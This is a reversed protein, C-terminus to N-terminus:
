ICLSRIARSSVVASVPCFLERLYTRPCCLLFWWIMAAIKKKICRSVSGACLTAYKPRLLHSSLAIGLCCFLPGPRSPSYICSGSRGTHPLLPGFPQHHFHSCPFNCRGLIPRSLHGATSATPITVTVLSSILKSHEKGLIVGLDQVSDYVTVNQFTEAVACCDVGALQRSGSLWIFQLKATNLLLLQLCVLWDSYWYCPLIASGCGSHWLLLPHLSSCWWCLASSSSWLIVAIPRYYVHSNHITFTGFCFGWLPTPVLVAKSASFHAGILLLSAM